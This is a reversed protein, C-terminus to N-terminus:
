LAKKNNYFELLREVFFSWQYKKKEEKVSETFSSELGHDYYKIIADAIATPEIDVVFGTVQDKVVEPLGGVHTVIMPKSFHLAIQTIGSQTASKYPQVVLDAASFYQNVESNPIFHTAKIIQSALQNETIFSEYFEQNSYYEGAIILKIGYDKMRQDMMAKLLLDLGKYDRILGFFLIVKDDPNLGFQQKALAKDLQEGFIDYIPHSLTIAPQDTFEKLDREVGASLAIFKDVSRTFYKTLFKDGIRKEHPKINDPISLITTHQNAKIIRCITGFALGMFPLWFRVIVLDPRENKLKLGVKIWNFPNFSHIMRRIKLDKPPQEESYQTKGPFLFDPYQKTFNILHVEKGTKQLERALRMGSDAIGGRYPYAPGIIYVKM